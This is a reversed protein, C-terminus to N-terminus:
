KFREDMLHYTIARQRQKKEAESKLEEFEKEKELQDLGTTIKESCSECLRGEQITEGCSECPYGLNPFQSVLLRGERVFMHIQDLSVETAEHVEQITAKRNKRQRLFASVVDYDEEQKKYCADCIPRLARVFIAGCRPCNDVNRM